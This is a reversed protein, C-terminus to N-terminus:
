ADTLGKVIVQGEAGFRHMRSRDRRILLKQGRAVPLQGTQHATVQDIGDGSRYLYTEGSLREAFDVTAMLDSGVDTALTAHEPRFSYTVRDRPRVPVSVPQTVATAGARLLTGVEGSVVKPADLNIRPSASFGAM